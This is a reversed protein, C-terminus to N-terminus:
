VNPQFDIQYGGLTVNRTHDILASEPLGDKVLEVLLSTNNTVPDLSCELSVTTGHELQVRERSRRGNFQSETRSGDPDVISLAGNIRTLQLDTFADAAINAFRFLGYALAVLGLSLVPLWKVYWPLPPLVEILVIQSTSPAFEDPGYVTVTFEHTGPDLTLVLNDTGSKEITEGNGLDYVSRYITGESDNILEVELSGRGSVHSATLKAVPALHRAAVTVTHVVSDMGGVGFAALTFDVPGERDLVIEFSRGDSKTYDREIKKDGLTLVSRNHLGTTMDTVIIKDGVKPNAAGVVLAAVPAAPAPVVITRTTKSEGGPGKVWLSLQFEGPTGAVMEFSSSDCVNKDNLFWQLSEIEGTSESVFRYKEGFDLKSPSAFLAVPKVFVPETVKVVKRHKNKRGSKDSLSHHVEFEGTKSFRHEPHAETSTAGDGFNWLHSVGVGSVVANFQMTQGLEISDPRCEFTADIAEAKVVRVTKAVTQTEGSVSTVTLKVRYEGVSDYTHRPSSVKSTNGDGFDTVQEQVVGGTHDIFQVPQNVVVESPSWSFEPTLPIVQDPTVSSVVNINTAAMAEKVETKLEFGLTVYTLQVHNTLIEKHRKLVQALTPGSKHSPYNEGDTYVLLRIPRGPTAEAATAMETMVTDLHEWLNTYKGTPNLNDFISQLKQRQKESNVTIKEYRKLGEDFTYVKVTTGDPLSTLFGGLQRRVEIIKIGWVGTPSNSQNGMSGSTDLMVAYATQQDSQALSITSCTSLAIAMALALSVARFACRKM